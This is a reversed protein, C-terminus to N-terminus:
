TYTALVQQVQAARGRGATRPRYRPTALPGLVRVGAQVANFLFGATKEHCERNGSAQKLSRRVQERYQDISELIVERRRSSTRCWASRRRRSPSRRTASASSRARHPTRRDGASRRPSLNCRKGREVRELLVAGDDLDHDHVLFTGCVRWALRRSVCRIGLAQTKPHM